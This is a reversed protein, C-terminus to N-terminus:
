KEEKKNYNNCNEIYKSLGYLDGYVSLYRIGQEYCNSEMCDIPVEDDNKRNPCLRSESIKSSLESLIAEKYHKDVILKNYLKTDIKGESGSILFMGKQKILRTNASISYDPIFLSEENLGFILNAYTSIRIPNDESAEGFLKNIIKEGDCVTKDKTKLLIKNMLNYFTTNLNSYLNKLYALVFGATWGEDNDDVFDEVGIKLNNFIDVLQNKINNMYPSILDGKNFCSPELAEIKNILVELATIYPNKGIYKYLEYHKNKLIKITGSLAVDCYIHNIYRAYLKKYRACVNIIEFFTDQEEKTLKVFHSLFLIRMQEFLNNYDAKQIPFIFLVGDKENENKREKITNGDCFEANNEANPDSCAMYLAVLPCFTLDTYRTPIGYHQQKSINHPTSLSIRDSLFNMGENEEDFIDVCYRLSDYYRDKEKEREFQKTLKNQRFVSPVISGYDQSQGRFALLYKKANVAKNKINDIENYFEKVSKIKIAGPVTEKGIMLVCDNKSGTFAFVKKVDDLYTLDKCLNNIKRLIEYFDGEAVNMPIEKYKIGIDKFEYAYIRSGHHRLGKGLGFSAMLDCTPSTLPTAIGLLKCKDNFKEHFEKMSDSDLISKLGDSPYHHNNIEQSFYEYVDFMEDAIGHEIYKNLVMIPNIKNDNADYIENYEDKWHARLPTCLLEEHGCKIIRTKFHNRKCENLDDLYAVIFKELSIQRRQTTNLCKDFPLVAWLPLKVDMKGISASDDKKYAKGKKVYFNNASLALMALASGVHEYTYINIEEKFHCRLYENLAKASSIQGGTGALLINIRKIRSNKKDDVFECIAEYISGKLKEYDDKYFDNETIAYDFENFSYDEKNLFTYNREDNQSAFFVMFAAKQQEPTKMLCKISEKLDSAISSVPADKYTNVNRMKSIKINETTFQFKFKGTM